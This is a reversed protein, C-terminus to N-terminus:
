NNGVESRVLWDRLIQEGCQYRSMDRALGAAAHQADQELLSEHLRQARQLLSEKSTKQEIESFSAITVTVGHRKMAMYALIAEDHTPVVSYGLENGTRVFVFWPDTCPIGEENNEM